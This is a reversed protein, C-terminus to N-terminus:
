LVDRFMFMLRFLKILVELFTTASRLFVATVLVFVVLLLLRLISYFEVRDTLMQRFPISGCGNLPTYVLPISLDLEDGEHIAMGEIKDLYERDYEAGLVVIKGSKVGEDFDSTKIGTWIDVANIKETMGDAVDSSVQCGDDWYAKYGNYERPNHSATINIGSVTGLRRVMFALEPTPRLDPFTYVKIGNAAFIGAALQSFEKSFHRPDHAIVVGKECAEKGKSVIYDAVGQSAKGVTLFNMRNTGAGVKGRLGATGFSLDQYFRDEIEKDDGKIAELEAKLPDSDSLKDLWEQYRSKSYFEVRFFANRFKVKEHVRWTRNINCVACSVFPCSNIM